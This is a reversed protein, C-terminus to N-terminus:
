GISSKVFSVARYKNGKTTGLVHSVLAVTANSVSHNTGNQDGIVTNPSSANLLSLNLDKMEVCPEFNLDSGRLRCSM